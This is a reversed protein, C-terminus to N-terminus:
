VIVPRILTFFEALSNAIKQHPECGVNEVWVEGSDNKISLFSDEVDTVAFFITLTQKLDKKMMIHGIINEQLRSFDAESWAFLLSLKGEECSVPLSDAFMVTYYEKIDEHLKIELASEVNSFSLQETVKQPQWTIENENFVDVQCVSPWDDDKDALPLHEYKNQYASLYNQAFDWLSESLNNNTLKM